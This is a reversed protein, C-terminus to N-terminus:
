LKKALAPFVSCIEGWIAPNSKELDTKVEEIVLFLQQAATLIKVIPAAGPIFSAVTLAESAVSEVTSLVTAPANVSAITATAGASAAPTAVVAVTAPNNVPAAAATSVEAVVAAVQPVAAAIKSIDSMAQQLAKILSM